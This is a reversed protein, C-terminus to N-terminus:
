SVWCLGREMCTVGIIIVDLNFPMVSPTWHKRTPQRRPANNCDCVPLGVDVVVVVVVVPRLSASATASPSWVGVSARSRAVAGDVSRVVGAGQLAPRHHLQAQWRGQVLAKFWLRSVSATQASAGKCSPLSTRARALADTRCQVTHEHARELLDSARESGGCRSAVKLGQARRAKCWRLGLWSRCRGLLGSM